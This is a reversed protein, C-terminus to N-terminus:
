EQRLAAFPDVRTARLAPRLGALLAVALLSAAVGAIAVADNPQVANFQSTLVRGLLLSGAIGVAIGVATIRLVSWLVLGVIERRGAGLAVRVGLEQNRRSVLYSFVAYIGAATLAAAIGAFVAILVAAFRPRWLSDSMVAPMPRVETIALDPDLQRIAAQAAVAVSSPDGKSRVAVWANASPMQEMAWYVTPYATRDLANMKSDAVVGVVTMRPFYSTMDIIINKGVPEEGGFFKACAENIVAVMPRGPTDQPTFVRGRHLPIGFTEFFRPTVREISISGHNYLGTKNTRAAGGYESSKAPPAPRGEIHM